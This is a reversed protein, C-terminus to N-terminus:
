FPKRPSRKSIPRPCQPSRGVVRLSLTFVNGVHHDSDVRTERDACRDFIFSGRLAKAFDIMKTVVGRRDAYKM